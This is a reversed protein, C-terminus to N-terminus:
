EEKLKMLLASKGNNQLWVSSFKKITMTAISTSIMVGIFIPRLVLYLNCVGQDLTQIRMVKKNKVSQKTYMSSSKM